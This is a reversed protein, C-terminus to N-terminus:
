NDINIANKEIAGQRINIINVNDVIVFRKHFLNHLTIVRERERTGRPFLM